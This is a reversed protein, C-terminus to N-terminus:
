NARGALSLTPMPLFVTGSPGMQIETDMVDCVGCDVGAGVDHHAAARVRVDERAVPRRAGDGAADGLQRFPPPAFLLPVPMLLM